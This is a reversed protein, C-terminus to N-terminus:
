FFLRRSGPVTQEPRGKTADSWEENSVPKNGAVGTYAKKDCEILDVLNQLEPKTLAYIEKPDEFFDGFAVLDGEDMSVGNITVKRTTSGAQAHKGAEYRQIKHPIRDQQVVHTLEHALLRRGEM